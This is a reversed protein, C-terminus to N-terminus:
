ADGFRGEEWRVWGGNGGKRQLVKRWCVDWGARGAGRIREEREQEARRAAADRADRIRQQALEYFRAKLGTERQVLEEERLRLKNERQSLAHLHTKLAYERAHLSPPTTKSKSPKFPTLKRWLSPPPSSIRAKQSAHAHPSPHASISPKISASSSTSVLSTTSTNM